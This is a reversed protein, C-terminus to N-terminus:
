PGYLVEKIIQKRPYRYSPTQMNAFLYASDIRELCTTKRRCGFVFALPM